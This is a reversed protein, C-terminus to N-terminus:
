RSAASTPPRGALARRVEAILVPWGAGKEAFGSGGAEFGRRRSLPDSHVSLFVIAPSSAAARLARTVAYGDLRPLEIDLIVVDPALAAARDLAEAGDGAEGVVVLDAENELAWRLAERVEPVDDVILVRYCRHQSEMAHIYVALPSAAM